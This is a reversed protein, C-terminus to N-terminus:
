FLMRQMAQGLTLDSLQLSEPVRQLLAALQRMSNFSLAMAVRYSKAPIVGGESQPYFRFPSRSQELAQQLARIEDGTLQVIGIQAEQYLAAFDAWTTLGAVGAPQEPPAQVMQIAFDAGAAIRMAEATRAALQGFSNEAAAIPNCKEPATLWRWRSDFHRVKVLRNPDDQLVLLDCGLPTEEQLQLIMTGPRYAAPDQAAVWYVLRAPVLPNYYYLGMISGKGPLRLGDSCLIEADFRVPLEGAMRQVLQNEEARGILVLNHRELDAATVATDPKTKLRGYLIHHSPVGDKIDGQDGVWTPHVSKSAALAAAAMAQRASASGGTGYVILLPEHQYLNHVGGPTHLAFATTDPGAAAASWGTPIKRLLISDPLPASLTIPVGGNVSLRLPQLPDLPSERTRILLASLNDLTLYLQNDRGAVARFRAPGPLSGWEAAKLWYASCSSRDRATFDIQRVERFDPRVQATMWNLARANGEHYNWAAHQLGNTEDIVAQGGAALLALLPTRSLLVPVTPDDQSHTSYLPVHLSNRVIQDQGFGCIPRGSAWRDPYRSALKFTGGGGMSTGNLHIRREDIRWHARVYDVADLIDAESLDYYWGGRARGLIHLEFYDPNSQLGGSYELHNGGYGHMVIVLPWARNPDYGAPIALKFPQGTDDVRSLYAWEQVGSLTDLLAPDTHVKDLWQSLRYCAQLTREGEDGDRERAYGILYNLYSIWGHYRSLGPEALLADVQGALVLMLDERRGVFLSKEATFLRGDLDRAEAILRYFGDPLFPTALSDLPRSLRAATQNRIDFIQLAAAVPRRQKTGPGMQAQIAPAAAGAPHTTRLQLAPRLVVDDVLFAIHDLANRFVLRLSAPAATEPVTFTQVLSSWTLKDCDVRGIPLSKEKGAEQWVLFLDFQGWGAEANRLWASIEYRYGPQLLAAADCAAGGWARLPTVALSKRGGHGTRTTIEMRSSDVASWGSLLGSEFGPNRLLNIAQPLASQLLPMILMATMLILVRLAKM